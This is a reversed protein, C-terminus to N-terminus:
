GRGLPYRGWVVPHCDGRRARKRRARQKKGRARKERARAKGRARKKETRASEGARTNVHATHSNRSFRLALEAGGM